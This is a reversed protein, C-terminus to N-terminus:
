TNRRLLRLLTVEVIPNHNPNPNHDPNSSPNPNPYPYPNPNLRSITLRFALLM